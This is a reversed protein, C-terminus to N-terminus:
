DLAESMRKAVEAAGEGGEATLGAIVGRRDADSRNQSLKWKGEIREIPLDFAVIGRLMGDVFEAPAREATWPTPRSAEQARV